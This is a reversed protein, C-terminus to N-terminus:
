KADEKVEIPKGCWCKGLGSPMVESRAKGCDSRWEPALVAGRGCLRWVCREQAQPAVQAALEAHDARMRDEPSLVAQPPAVPSEVPKYTAAFIDPKCPYFEGAVGRIIYDGPSAVHDGELTRVILRGDQVYVAETGTLAYVNELSVGDYQVAEIVVPKKRYKM